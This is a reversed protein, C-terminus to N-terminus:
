REKENKEDWDKFLQRIYEHLRCHVLPVRSQNNQVTTLLIDRVRHFAILFDMMTEVEETWIHKRM